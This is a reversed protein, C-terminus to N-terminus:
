PLKDGELLTLAEPKIAYPCVYTLGERNNPDLELDEMDVEVKFIIIEDLWEEPVNDATEAYSEAEEPTAALYIYEGAYMGEYNSKGEPLKLGSKLIEDKHIMYTAHYLYIKHKKM